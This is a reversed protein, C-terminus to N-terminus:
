FTYGLNFTLPIKVGDNQPFINGNSYHGIRIEANVQRNKGAFTGIGMLDQFTFHKGTNINDITTKSIFTPGAVSYYFYIDAPNTRLFTFRFVPFVSLTYFKDKNKKSQWYSLSTGWDLSFLKRGHFINRQYHLSFGKEVEAEGGWFIPIAGKSVFDNAGYSYHNTSYGLQILNAPFIFGTNSNKEVRETSLARMNYNFGSSYFVMSPQNEKSHRPSYSASLKLDFNKNLQYQLGTGLLVSAYNADKVVDTNGFKFGKRTIVALGGEGYLSIKKTVPLRYKVTLGAVNMWVYHIYKDENINKYEVWNVPRMYSIQASLNKNFHHGLLLVQLALHPIRISEARFGPELQLSSFPYNIYGM